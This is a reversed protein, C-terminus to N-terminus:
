GKAVGFQRRVQARLLEFPPYGTLLPAWDQRLADLVFIDKAAFAKQLYRVADEKEGLLGCTRALEYGDSQGRSFSDEQVSQIARLMGTKGSSAWGRHAASAIRRDAATGSLRALRRLQELYGAYDGDGLDIRALFAPPSSFDPEAAELEGLAAKAQRDGGSYRIWAQDALISRSAPTLQQALDIESRAEAYRHVANLATAYWHHAQGDNPALQIARQFEAFARLADTQSWFLGFALALHAASISPDLSIAKDAAAIARSFAAAQPMASYEPMLDYTEALGAYAAAYNSDAVIAQTYADAAEQLSNRTRHEWYYQGKMYETRAALSPIHAPPPTAAANRPASGRAARYQRGGFEALLVVALAFLVALWRSNLRVGSRPAPAPPEVLPPAVEEIQLSYGRSPFVIRWRDTIGTGEYYAAVMKRLRSVESRVSSDIRQDFSEPKRFVELAIAYEGLTNGQGAVSKTVLYRLLEARRPSSDFPPSRLLSDLYEAFQPPFGPEVRNVGGAAGM